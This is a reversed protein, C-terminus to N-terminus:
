RHDEAATLIENEIMAARIAPLMRQTHEAIKSCCCCRHEEAEAAHEEEAVAETEDLAMPVLSTVELYEVSERERVM